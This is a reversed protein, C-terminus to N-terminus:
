QLKGGIAVALAYSDSPSGLVVVGNANAKDVTVQEVSIGDPVLICSVDTLTAVAVINLNTQVTIWVDDAKARSMVWSLLDGIYCGRVPRDEYDAKTLLQLDLQSILDSIKM